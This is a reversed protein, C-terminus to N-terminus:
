APLASRVEDREFPQDDVFVLSDLGLNLAESIARVSSSKADWHIQPHLFYELVGLERLKGLAVAPDNRSAVSQRIGRADLARLADPRPRVERDELLVGSWLTDDLDWVVCKVPGGGDSGGGDGDGGGSNSSNGGGSDHPGGERESM